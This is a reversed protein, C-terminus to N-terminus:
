TGHVEEAPPQKLVSSRKRQWVDFAEFGNRPCVSSASLYGLDALDVCCGSVDDVIAGKHPVHGDMAARECPQKEQAVVCSFNIAMLAVLAGCRGAISISM